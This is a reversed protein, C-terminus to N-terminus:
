RGIIKIFESADNKSLLKAELLASAFVNRYAPHANRLLTVCDMQQVSEKLPTSWAVVYNRLETLIEM